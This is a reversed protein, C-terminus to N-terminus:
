GLERRVVAVDRAEDVARVGGGGLDGGVAVGEPARDLLQRRQEILQLRRGGAQRRDGVVRARDDVLQAGRRRLQAGQQRVQRRQGLGAARRKGREARGGVHTEPGDGGRARDGGAQPGRRRQHGLHR